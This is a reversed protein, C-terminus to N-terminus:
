AAAAALTSASNTPALSNGSAFGLRQFAFGGPPLGSPLECFMMLVRLYLLFLRAVELAGYIGATKQQAQSRPSLRWIANQRPAPM